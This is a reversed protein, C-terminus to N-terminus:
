GPITKDVIPRPEPIDAYLDVVRLAPGFCERCRQRMRDQHVDTALVVADVGTINAGAPPLVPIGDLAAGPAAKDDLISVVRPGELDRVLDLFWRTFQGAGFLSVQRVGSCALLRWEQKLFAIVIHDAKEKVVHYQQPAPKDLTRALANLLQDQDVPDRFAIFNGWDDPDELPCPWTALRRWDHTQGYQKIPFWESVLLHYGKQLLCDAMDGHTYGLPRTKADEFECVIYRPRCRDFPFGRLVHLDFGETDIKLFDVPDIKRERCFADLTVTAVTGQQVHSDHFPQLGSIGTSVPSSYFPVADQARDSVAHPVIRLRPFQRLLRELIRRNAADPEFAVVDWGGNLFPLAAYGHHAGVDLMVGRPERRGSWYEFVLSVEDLVM